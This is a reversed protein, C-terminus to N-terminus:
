WASIIMILGESSPKSQSTSGLSSDSALIETGKFELNAKTHLLSVDGPEDALLGMGTSFAYVLRKAKEEKLSLEARYM